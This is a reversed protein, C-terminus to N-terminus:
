TAFGPYFGEYTHVFAGEWDEMLNQLENVIVNTSTIQSYFLEKYICIRVVM